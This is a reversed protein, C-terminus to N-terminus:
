DPDGWRWRWGGRTRKHVIAVLVITSLIMLAVAAITEGFGGVQALMALGTVVLVFSGILVWGQWAIPLGAGYGHSKPAFWDGPEFFKHLM